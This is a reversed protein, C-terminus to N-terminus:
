GRRRVRPGTPFFGHLLFRGLHQGGDALCRPAAPRCRLIVCKLGDQLAPLVRDGALLSLGGILVHQWSRGEIAVEVEREWGPLVLVGSDSYMANVFAHIHAPPIMLDFILRRHSPTSEQVDQVENRVLIPAREPAAAKALAGVAACFASMTGQPVKAGGQVHVDTKICVHQLARAEPCSRLQVLLRAPQRGAGGSRQQQQQRSPQQQQQQQASRGGSGGAAASHSPAM